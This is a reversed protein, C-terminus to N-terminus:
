VDHKSRECTKPLQESKQFLEAGCYACMWYIEGSRDRRSNRRWRCNRMERKSLIAVFVIGLALGLIIHM